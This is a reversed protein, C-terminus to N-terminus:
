CCTEMILMLIVYVCINPSIIKLQNWKIIISNMKVMNRKVGDAMKECLKDCHM